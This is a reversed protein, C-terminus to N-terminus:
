GKTLVKNLLPELQTEIERGALLHDILGQNTLDVLRKLDSRRATWQSLGDVFVIHIVKVKSLEEFERLERGVLNCEYVADSMKSGGQTGGWYEKNEWVLIPNALAPIAGDLNRATVHLRNEACWVCRTQPNPDFSLGKEGCVKAVIGNVLAVVAKASQHHDPNKTRTYEVKLKRDKCAKVAQKEDRLMTYVSAVNSEREKLYEFFLKVHEPEIPLEASNGVKMKNLNQLEELWEAQDNKRRALSLYFRVLDWLTHRWGLSAWKDTRTM